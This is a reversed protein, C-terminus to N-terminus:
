TYNWVSKRAFHCCRLILVGICRNSINSPAIGDVYEQPDTHGPGYSGHVPFDHALREPHIWPRQSERDCEESDECKDRHGHEHESTPRGNAPLKTTWSYGAEQGGQQEQAQPKEVDQKGAQLGITVNAAKLPFPSLDQFIIACCCVCVYNVSLWCLGRNLMFCTYPEEAQYPPSCGLPTRGKSAIILVFKLYINLYLNYIYLHLFM